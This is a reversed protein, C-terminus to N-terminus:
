SPKGNRRLWPAYRGRGRLLGSRPLVLVDIGTTPVAPYGCPLVLPARTGVTTALETVAAM